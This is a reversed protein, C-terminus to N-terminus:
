IAPNDKWCSNMNRFPRIRLRAKRELISALMMHLPISDPQLEIGARIIKIAQDYNEQTSTFIPWRGIVSLM